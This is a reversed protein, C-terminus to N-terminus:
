ISFQCMKKLVIKYWCKNLYILSIGDIKFVPPGIEAIVLLFNWKMSHSSTINEVGNQITDYITGVSKYFKKKM